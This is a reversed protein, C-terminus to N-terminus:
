ILSKAVEEVLDMADQMGAEMGSNIIADRVEQNPTEVLTSVTTRGGNETIQQREPAAFRSPSELAPRSRSRRGQAL